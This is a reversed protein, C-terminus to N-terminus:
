RQPEKWRVSTFPFTLWLSTFSPNVSRQPSHHSPPFSILIIDPFIWPHRRKVDMGQIEEPSLLSLCPRYPSAAGYHEKYRPALPYDLTCYQINGEELVAIAVSRSPSELHPTSSDSTVSHGTLWSPLYRSLSSQLIRSEMLPAVDGVLCALSPCAVRQHVHLCYIERPGKGNSGVRVDELHYNNRIKQSERGHGHVQPWKTRRHTGKYGGDQSSPISLM